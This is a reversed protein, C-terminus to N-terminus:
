MVRPNRPGWMANRLPAADRQALLLRAGLERGRLAVRYRKLHVDGPVVEIIRLRGLSGVYTQTARRSMGLSQALRTTSQPAIAIARLGRILVGITHSRRKAGTPRPHLYPEVTQEALLLYAGLERGRPAIRYRRRHADDPVSEVLGIATLTTVMLRASRPGIGIADALMPVSVPEGAIVGLAQIVTYATQGKAM